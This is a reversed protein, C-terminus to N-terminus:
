FWLFFVFCGGICWLILLFFCGVLVNCCFYRFQRALVYLCVLGIICMVTECSIRVTQGFKMPAAICACIVFM